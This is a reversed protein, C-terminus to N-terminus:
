RDPDSTESNHAMARAPGFALAAYFVFMVCSFVNQWWLVTSESFSYLLFQSLAIAPWPNRVTFLRVTCRLLAFGLLGALGILGPLGAALGMEYWANHANPVDWQVEERVYYSPGLPDQWYAGLGYGTLPRAEIARWAAHWINTRGTLTPDKGLLALIEEGFFTMTLAAGVGAVVAIYITAVAAAPSIRAIRSLFYLGAVLMTAMFSTTSTSGIVLLVALACAGIWVKRRRSDFQALAGFIVLNIGSASGLANKEHLMGKWAGAHVDHDIGAAPNFIVIILHLASTILAGIGVLRLADIWPGRIYLLVGLLVTFTLAILRRSTIDPMVSWFYTAMTLILLAFVPWLRPLARIVQGTRALLAILIGLYLPYWTARAVPDGAASAALDVPLANGSILFVVASQLMMTGLIILGAEAARAVAAFEGSPSRDFSLPAAIRHEPM